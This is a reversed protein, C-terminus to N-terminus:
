DTSWVSVPSIISILLKRRSCNQKKEESCVPFKEVERSPLWPMQLQLCFLQELTWTGLCMCRQSTRPLRHLHPKEVTDWSKQRSTLGRLFRSESGEAVERHLSWFSKVLKINLKLISNIRHVWISTSERMHHPLAPQRKLCDPQLTFTTRLSFM